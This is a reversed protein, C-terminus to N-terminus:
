RKYIVCIVLGVVIIAVSVCIIAIQEVGVGGTMRKPTENTKKDSFLYVDTSMFESRLERKKRRVTWFTGFKM